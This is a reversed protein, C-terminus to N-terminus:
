DAHRSRLDRIERELRSTRNEQAERDLLWETTRVFASDKGNELGLARKISIIDKSNQSQGWRLYGVGAGILSANAILQLLENPSM